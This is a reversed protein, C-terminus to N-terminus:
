NRSKLEALIEQAKRFLGDIDVGDAEAWVALEENAEKSPPGFGIELIASAAEVKVMNFASTEMLHLLQEMGEETPKAVVAKIKQLEEAETM